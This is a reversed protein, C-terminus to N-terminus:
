EEREEILAAIASRSANNAVADLLKQKNATMTVRWPLNSHDEFSQSLLHADFVINEGAPLTKLTQASRVLLDQLANRLVSIQKLKRDHIAKVEQPTITANFPTLPAVRALTMEFTFVVGYGHLYTGRTNGLWDWDGTAFQSDTIKEVEKLVTITVRSDAGTALTAALSVGALALLLLPKM